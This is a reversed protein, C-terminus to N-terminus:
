EALFYAYTVTITPAGDWAPFSAQRAVKAVCDGAPTGAFAGTAEASKVKGNSSVIVKISVSGNAGTSGQCAQARKTLPGMAGKIDGSTLSKKEPKPAEAAKGAKDGAAGLLDDLSEGDGKGGPKAAVAKDAKPADAAKSAKDKSSAPADAKAVIADPKKTTPEVAAPAQDVVPPAVVPAVAIPPAPAVPAAAKPVTAVAVVPAAM